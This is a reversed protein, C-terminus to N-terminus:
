RGMYVLLVSIDSPSVGSIRRAQGIDVPKIKTLKQRAETSLSKLSNYDIGTPIKTNELRRIKNAMNKEREIYGSYKIAIEASEVIGDDPQINFKKGMEILGPIIDWMKAINVQPREILRISKVKQKLESTKLDVLTAGAQEPSISTERLHKILNNRKSMKNELLRMRQDSALGIKNSKETLREDANDQRLLIRYEARSTFMRYPEDVGKTVLDDILVGIYSNDRELIFGERERCNLHANIGAIIGQAAAEEYGTTGNIQGAFFLAEIEKTELRHTLQTPPYYDYEIAYGPRFIKVNELGVIKRLAKLQIDWPLSSSFGNIYYEVTNIGEPELFLMHEDKDSFTVVKGQGLAKLQEM